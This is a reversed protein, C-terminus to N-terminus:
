REASAKMGYYRRILPAIPVPVLAEWPRGQRIAERVASASHTQFEEPLDLTVIRDALSPPPRFEGQRAAVLLSFERLQEEISRGDRYDWGVIREAADRGCIFALEVSPDYKQRLEGAIGAFLGNGSIAVSFRPEPETAALLMSLRAEMGAGEYSKHPFTEPLVFVVEDMHRLAAGALALHAVTPPNFSGALVGLRGKARVTQRHFVM